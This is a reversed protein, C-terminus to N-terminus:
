HYEWEIGIFDGNVVLKGETDGLNEGWTAFAVTIQCRRPRLSPQIMPDPPLYGGNIVLPVTEFRSVDHFMGLFDNTTGLNLRCVRNKNQVLEFDM